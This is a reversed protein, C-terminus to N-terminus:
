LAVERFDGRLAAPSADVLLNPDTIGAAPLAPLERVADVHRARLEDLDGFEIARMPCADVCVPNRGDARLAKCTDCKVIMNEAEDHQPAGYPCVTMCNRCVVCRDDIHLVAGDDSKFLAGTPCGAVCAPRECHNCSLPLQFMAVDPYAGCEFTGVRRLRPGAQQLDHRDKCAVQCTKCGICRRLNVYFGLSM